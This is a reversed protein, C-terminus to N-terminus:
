TQLFNSVLSDETLAVFLGLRDSSAQATASAAISLTGPSAAEAHFGISARAPQGTLRGLEGDLDERWDRVETGSVFFHPTFVTKHGNFHV